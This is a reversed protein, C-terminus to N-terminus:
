KENALAALAFDIMNEDDWSANAQDRVPQKHLLQLLRQRLPEAPTGAPKEWGTKGRVGGNHECWKYHQHVECWAPDAPAGIAAAQVKHCHGNIFVWGPVVSAEVTLPAPPEPAAIAGEDEMADLLNWCDSRRAPAPPAAQPSLAARAPPFEPMPETVSPWTERSRKWCLRGYALMQDYDYSGAVGHIVGQLYNALEGDTPTKSDIGQNTSM